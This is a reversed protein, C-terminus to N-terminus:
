DGLYVSVASAVAEVADDPLVGISDLLRAKSIQRLGPIVAYSKRLGRTPPLELRLPWIVPPRSSIPVVVLTDLIANQESNSLILAPRKEGLEPPHADELNVWYISGRTM